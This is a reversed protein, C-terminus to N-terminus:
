CVVALARDLEKFKIVLVAVLDSLCKLSLLVGEKAKIKLDRLLQPGWPPAEHSM